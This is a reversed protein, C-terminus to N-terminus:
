KGVCFEKFVTDMGQESITKGTLESLQALADILHYSLLEYQVPPVLLTQVATLKQELSLVLTFQRKNLLFPSEAQSCLQEIKSEILDELIRINSGNISSTTVAPLMSLPQAVVPLDNKTHVVIIKQAYQKIIDEYVVREQDSM